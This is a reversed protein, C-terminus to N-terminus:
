ANQLIRGTLIPLEPKCVREFIETGDSLILRPVEFRLLIVPARNQLTAFRVPATQYPTVSARSSALATEHVVNRSSIM